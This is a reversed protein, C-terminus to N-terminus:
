CMSFCAIRELMSSALVQIIKKKCHKPRHGAVGGEMSIIVPLRSSTMRVEIFIIKQRRGLVAARAHCEQECM